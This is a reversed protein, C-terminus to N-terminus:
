WKFAEPDYEMQESTRIYDPADIKVHGKQYQNQEWSRVSAKWDKMKTKGVMWGKSEYFDIFRQPNVSNKREKCYASVQEFTPPIFINREKKENKCEQKNGTAQRNNASQKGTQKGNQTGTQGDYLQYDAWKVVRIITYHNTPQCAVEHTEKLHEISTRVNKVSLGSKKALQAYSTVMEGCGIELGHWKKPEHNVSLLITLWLVRTNIDDWWEWDLMSRHIKIWGDAM